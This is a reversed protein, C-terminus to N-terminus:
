VKIKNGKSDFLNLAILVACSPSYVRGSVYKRIAVTNIFDLNSYAEYLQDINIAWNTQNNERIFHLKNDMVKFSSYSAKGTISTVRKLNSLQVIFDQKTM